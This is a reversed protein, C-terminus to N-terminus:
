MSNRKLSAQAAMEDHGLPAPVFAIVRRRRQARLRQRRELSWRAVWYQATLGALLLASDELLSTDVVARLTQLMMAIVSGTAFTALSARGLIDIPRMIASRALAPFAPISTLVYALALVNVLRLLALMDKRQDAIFRPTDDPWPFADRVIFQWYGAFLVIALSVLFLAPSFPIWREGRKASMGGALGIAFLLQWCFPNFYWGGGQPWNFMHLPVVRGLVFIGASVALMLMLSRTGLWMLTPLFLFLILYLPLINFYAIQYTLLFLGSLTEYPATVVKTIGLSGVYDTLPFFAAALLVVVIGALSSLIHVGYITKMRQFIKATTEGYRGRYYGRSYALGASVGAILVFGEAADSFGFMRITYNSFFNGPVHDIFIMILALGRLVDIRADRPSKKRPLLGNKDKGDITNM